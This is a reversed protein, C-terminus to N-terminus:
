ARNMTTPAMRGRLRELGRVRDDHGPVQRQLAKLLKGTGPRSLGDGRSGVSPKDKGDATPSRPKLSSTTRAHVLM